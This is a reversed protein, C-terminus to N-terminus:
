WESSDKMWEQVRRRSRHAVVIVAAIAITLLLPPIVVAGANINACESCSNTASRLYWGPECRGCLVGGSGARCAGTTNGGLCNNTTCQYIKTSSSSFRFHGLFPPQLNHQFKSAPDQLVCPSAFTHLACTGSEIFLGALTSGLKQCDAGTPCRQCVGESDAYHDEVSVPYPSRSSILESALPWLSLYIGPAVRPSVVGCVDISGWRLVHVTGPVARVNGRLRRRKSLLEAPVIRATGGCREM